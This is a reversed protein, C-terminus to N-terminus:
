VCNALSKIEDSIKGSIIAAAFAGREAIVQAVEGVDGASMELAGDVGMRDLMERAQQEPTKKDM